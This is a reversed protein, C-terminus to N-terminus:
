YGKFWRALRVSVKSTLSAVPRLFKEARKFYNVLESKKRPPALPSPEWFFHKKLFSKVKIPFLFTAKCYRGCFTTDGSTTRCTTCVPTGCKQCSSRAVKDAHRFCNM